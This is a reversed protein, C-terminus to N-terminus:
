RNSSFSRRSKGKLLALFLEFTNYLWSLLYELCKRAEALEGTQCLWDFFGEVLEKDPVLGMNMMEKFLKLAKKM